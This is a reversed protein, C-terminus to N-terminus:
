PTVEPKNILAVRTALARSQSTLRITIVAEVVLARQMVTTQSGQLTCRGYVYFPHDYSHQGLLSPNWNTGGDTSWLGFTQNSGALLDYYREMTGAGSVSGRVVLALVSHGSPVVVDQFALDTWQYSPTLLSSPIIAPSGIASRPVSSGAPQPAYILGLVMADPRSAARLRCRARTIQRDTSGEPWTMSFSQAAWDRHTLTFNQSTALIGAWGTFSALLLEGSPTSGTTTKSEEVNRTITSISFEAVDDVLPMSTGANRQYMLATGAGGWAYRLLDASGDEDRDAVEFEVEVGDRVSITRASSLDAALQQVSANARITDRSDSRRSPLSYASLLVASALGATLAATIGVSLVLEVLTFGPSASPMPRRVNM